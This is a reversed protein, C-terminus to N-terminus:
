EPVPRSELLATATDFSRQAAGLAAAVTIEFIASESCGSARLADFTGDTMRYAHDGVISVFDARVPDDDSGHFAARREGCTSRGDGELVARRLADAAARLRVTRADRAMSGSSWWNGRNLAKLAGDPSVARPRVCTADDHFANAVARAALHIISSLM